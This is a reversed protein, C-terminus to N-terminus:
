VIFCHAGGSSIAMPFVGEIEVMHFDQAYTFFMYVNADVRTKIYDIAMEDVIVAYPEELLGRPFIVYFYGDVGEQGSVDFALRGFSNFGLFEVSSNSLARFEYEDMNIVTFNQFPPNTQPMKLTARIGTDDYGQREYTGKYDYDVVTIQQVSKVWKYGWRCPLVISYGNGFSDMIQTLDTGNGWLGLITTPEMAASLLIDGLFGDTANFVVKRYEGSIVGAMSLLYFLPVGTWNLTLPRIGGGVCQLTAVESVLPFDKLEAYTINLPNKVLGNITM